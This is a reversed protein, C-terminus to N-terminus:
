LLTLLTSIEIQKDGRFWHIDKDKKFWTMQRKAYNRTHQKIKEIAEELSYTGDMYEFLEKYGVTQLAAYHRYPLLTEAEQLLGAQMMKDVRMNIREYLAPMPIELGIKIINFDREVKKNKYFNLISVGTSEWIELARLLRQPNDQEAQQWFLTDKKKVEDQLWEIGNKSFDNRLKERIGPDIEPMSDIGECFAKIYLGTGGAMVAVNKKAFIKQTFALASEEFLRANVEETISLNNIFFHPVAALEEVTPKAVGIHLERFCQRSDASIISTKFFRALEIAVVTKGSATPGLIIYITKEHPM